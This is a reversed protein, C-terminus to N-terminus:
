GATATCARADDRASATVIRCPQRKREPDIGDFLDVQSVTHQGGVELRVTAIGAPVPLSNRVRVFEPGIEAVDFWQGHLELAIHIPPSYGADAAYSRASM